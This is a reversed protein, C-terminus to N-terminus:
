SDQLKGPKDDDLLTIAPPRDDFVGNKVFYTAQEQIGNLKKVPSTAATLASISGASGAVSECLATPGDMEPKAAEEVSIGHSRIVSSLWVKEFSMM